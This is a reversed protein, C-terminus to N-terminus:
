APRALAGTPCFRACQPDGHCLDCKLAAHAEDDWSLNGFPCAGVCSRCRICRSADLEIAGTTDNRAPAHAPCVAVCAADDCQLCLVPTARRAPALRRNELRIRSHGPATGRPHAFACALECNGCGNCRDIAVRLVLGMTDEKTDTTAKTTVEDDRSLGATGRRGGRDRGSGGPDAGPQTAQM